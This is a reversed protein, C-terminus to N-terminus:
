HGINCSCVGPQRCLDWRMKKLLIRCSVRSASRSLSLSLALASAVKLGEEGAAGGAAGGRAGDQTAWYHTLLHHIRPPPPHPSFCAHVCVGTGRGSGQPHKRFPLPKWGVAASHSGVRESERVARLGSCPWGRMFWLYSWHRERGWCERVCMCVFMCSGGGWICLCLPLLFPDIRMRCGNPTKHVCTTWM